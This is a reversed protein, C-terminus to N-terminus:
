AAERVRVVGLSLAARIDRRRGGRARYQSLTMGPRLLSFRHARAGSFKNEGVWTITMDHRDLRSAPPRRGTASLCPPCVTIPKGVIKEVLALAERSNIRLLCLVLDAPWFGSQLLVDAVNQ